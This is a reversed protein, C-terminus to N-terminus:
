SGTSFTRRQHDHRTAKRHLNRRVMRRHRRRGRYGGSRTGQRMSRRAHACVSVTARGLRRGDWTYEIVEGNELRISTLIQQLNRRDNIYIEPRILSQGIFTVGHIYIRPPEAPLTRYAIEAPDGDPMNTRRPTVRFYYLTDANLIPSTEGLDTAVDVHTPFGPGPNKTRELSYEQSEERWEFIFYDTNKTQYTQPQGPAAGWRLHM